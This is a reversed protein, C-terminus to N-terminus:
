RYIQGEHPVGVFGHVMKFLLVLKAERRHTELSQWGLTDLMEIVSRDRSYDIKVFQAARWQM